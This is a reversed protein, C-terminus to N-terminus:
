IADGRQEDRRGAGIELAQERAVRDPQESVARTLLARVKGDAGVVRRGDSPQATAQVPDWERDLESSRPQARQRELLDLIPEILAESQEGATM